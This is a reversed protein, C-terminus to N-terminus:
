KAPPIQMRRQIEPYCLEAVWLLGAIILLWLAPVLCDVCRTALTTDNFIGVGWMVVPAVPTSFFFFQRVATLQLNVKGEAVKVAVDPWTLGPTVLPTPSM